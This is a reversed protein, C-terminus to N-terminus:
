PASPAVCRYVNFTQRGEAPPELAVITDGDMEAASNRALTELEQQVKERSREIGGVTAMLSVNTKGIYACSEVEAADLVRVKSGAPTPKVWTCATVLCMALLPMVYNMKM